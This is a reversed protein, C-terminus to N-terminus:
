SKVLAYKRLISFVREQNVPKSIFDTAGVIKTRVRDILGDKGTLIVIPIDKAISIRRIQACLEYGNVVPMILDLFILDPKLKLLHPIATVPDQIDFFRCGESIIIQKMQTCVTPSDDICVVLPISEEPSQYASLNGNFLLEIQRSKELLDKTNNSSNNERTQQVEVFSMMGSNVYQVFFLTLSPLPQKLELALSRLTRKGDVFKTLIRYEDQSNALNQRLREPQRIIPVLNPSYSTLQRQQWLEWEQNIEALTQDIRALTFATKPYDRDDYTFSLQLNAQKDELQYQYQLIDFLVECLVDRVVSIIQSRKRMDQKLINSLLLYGDFPSEDLNVKKLQNIEPCYHNLLRQWRELPYAGGGAWILRGLYFYLCWKLEKSAKIDLRGRFLRSQLQYLQYALGFSNKQELM